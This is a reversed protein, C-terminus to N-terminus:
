PNVIKGNRAAAAKYASYGPNNEMGSASRWARTRGSGFQKILAQRNLSMNFKAAGPSSPSMYGNRIAANSYAKAASGYSDYIRNPTRRDRSDGPFGWGELFNDNKYNADWAEVLVLSCEEIILSVANFYYDGMERSVYDVFAEADYDEESESCYRKAPPPFYETLITEQGANVAYDVMSEIIDTYDSEWGKENFQPVASYLDALDELDDLTSRKAGRMLKRTGVKMANRLFLRRIISTRIGM